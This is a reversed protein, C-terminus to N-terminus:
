ATCAAPIRRSTAASPAPSRRPRIPRTISAPMSSRRRSPSIPSAPSRWWWATTSTSRASATSSPWASCCATPSRCRAAPCRPAPAARCWRSAKTTAIPWCAASRRRHDGAAGRGDAAAPLRHARRIRLAADRARERDRGRGARHGLAGGRDAERRALVERDPEPMAVSMSGGLPLARGRRLLDLTRAPVIM